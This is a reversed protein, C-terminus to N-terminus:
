HVVVRPRDVLLNWWQALDRRAEALAHVLEM